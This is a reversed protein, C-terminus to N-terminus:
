DLPIENVISNFQNKMKDIREKIEQRRTETKAKNYKEEEAKIRVLLGTIAYIKLERETM